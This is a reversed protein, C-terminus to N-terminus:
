RGAGRQVSAEPKEEVSSLLPSGAALQDEWTVRVEQKRGHPGLSRGLSDACTGQGWCAEWMGGLIQCKGPTGVPRQPVAAAATACAPSHWVGGCRRLLMLGMSVSRLGVDQLVDKMEEDVGIACSLLTLTPHPHLHAGTGHWGRSHAAPAPHGQRVLVPPQTEGLVRRTIFHAVEGPHCHGLHSGSPTVGPCVFGQSSGSM